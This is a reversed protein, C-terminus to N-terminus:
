MNSMSHIFVLLIKQGRNSMNSMLIFSICEIFLPSYSLELLALPNCILGNNLFNYAKKHEVHEVYM